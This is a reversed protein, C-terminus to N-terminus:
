EGGVVTNLVVSGVSYYTDIEYGMIKLTIPENTKLEKNLKVSEVYEGPKVLGTEGIINGEADILRLKLWVHNDQSNTFYIIASQQKIIINECFSFRYGMGDQYFENYGFEDPIEPIGVRANDDFNPPVFSADKKEPACLVSIMIVLAISTLLALAVIFCDTKRDCKKM